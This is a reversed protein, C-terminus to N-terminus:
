KVLQKGPQVKSRRSKRVAQLATHREGM